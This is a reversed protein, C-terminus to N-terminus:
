ILRTTVFTTIAYASVVVVIGIIASIIVNRAKTVQDDNGRATMWLFGGYVMLVLFIIGTLLLAAQIVTGVISSIDRQEVGTGEAVRTLISGADTIQKKAFAVSPFFLVIIIWSILLSKELFRWMIIVYEFGIFM